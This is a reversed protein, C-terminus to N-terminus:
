KSNNLPETNSFEVNFHEISEKSEKSKISNKRKNKKNSYEPKFTAHKIILKSKTNATNNTFSFSENEKIKLKMNLSNEINNSKIVKNESFTEFLDKKNEDDEEDDFNFTTNKLILKGPKITQAFVLDHTNSNSLTRNLTESNEDIIGLRDENEFSDEDILKEKGYFKNKKINLNKNIILNNTHSSFEDPTSEIIKDLYHASSSKVAELKKLSYSKKPKRKENAINLNEKVKTLLHPNKIEDRKETSNKSNHKHLVIVKGAANENNSYSNLFGILNDYEEENTKHSKFHQENYDYLRQSQITQMIYTIKESFSMFLDFEPCSITKNLDGFANKDFNKYTLTKHKHNRQNFYDRLEKLYIIVREYATMTIDSVVNEPLLRLRKNLEDKNLTQIFSGFKKSNKRKTYENNTTTKPFKSFGSNYHFQTISNSIPRQSM